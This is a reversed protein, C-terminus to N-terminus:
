LVFLEVVYYAYTRVIGLTNRPLTFIIQPCLVPRCRVDTALFVCLDQRYHMWNCCVPYFIATRKCPQYLRSAHGGSVCFIRYGNRTACPAHLLSCACVLFTRYVTSKIVVPIYHPFVPSLITTARLCYLSVRRGLLFVSWREPPFIIKHQLSRANQFSVTYHGVYHV